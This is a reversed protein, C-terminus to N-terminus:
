MYIISAYINDTISIPNFYSEKNQERLDSCLHNSPYPKLLHQFIHPFYIKFYM